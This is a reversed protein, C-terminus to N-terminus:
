RIEAKKSYIEGLMLEKKESTIEVKERIKKLLEIGKGKVLREILESSSEDGNLAVLKEYVEDRITRKVM